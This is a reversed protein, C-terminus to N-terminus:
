VENPHITAIERYVIPTHDYIFKDYVTIGGLIVNAVILFWILKRFFQKTDEDIEPNIRFNKIM